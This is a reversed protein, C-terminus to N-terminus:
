LDQSRRYFSFVQWDRGSSILLSSSSEVVLKGDITGHLVRLAGYTQGNCHAPGCFGPPLIELLMGPGPSAGLAPSLGVTLGVSRDDRHQRAIKKAQLTLGCKIGLAYRAIVVKRACHQDPTLIKQM